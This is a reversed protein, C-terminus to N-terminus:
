VHRLHELSESLAGRGERDRPPMRSSKDAAVALDQGECLRQVSQKSPLFSDSAEVERAWFPDASATQEALHLPHGLHATEDHLAIGSTDQGHSGHEPPRRVVRAELDIDQLASIEKPLKFIRHNKNEIVGM